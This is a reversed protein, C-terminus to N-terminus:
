REATFHFYSPSGAAHAQDNPPPPQPSARRTPSAAANPHEAHLSRPPTPPHNPARVRNPHHAQMSKFMELMKKLDYDCQKSLAERAQRTRAVVPDLPDTADDNM